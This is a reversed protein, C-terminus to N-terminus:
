TLVLYGSPAKIDATNHRRESGHMVKEITSEKCGGRSATNGYSTSTDPRNNQNSLLAEM